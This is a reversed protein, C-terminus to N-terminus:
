PRPRIQKRRGEEARRTEEAEVAGKFYARLEELTRGRGTLAAFGPDHLPVTGSHLRRMATELHTPVGARTFASRFDAMTFGHHEMLFWLDFWDRARSRQATRLAKLAFIEELEAVRPGDLKGAALVSGAERESVFFTVKVGGSAVFDQRYRHLRKGAIEFEDMTAPDDNRELSVGERELQQVLSGLRFTPLEEAGLFMFDLNESLRHSVQLSLATGGVLVFGGLHPENELRRWLLETEPRLM